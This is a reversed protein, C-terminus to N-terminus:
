RRRRGRTLHIRLMDSNLSVALVLVVGYALQLIFTSVNFYTLVSQLLFIDAGGIVAATFGGIGGGLSVGGLAAAAIAILTYQPGIAPDGSGILSTLSLAALGAFLGGLAYALFRVLPVNVGATYAARDDGGTGMLHDYFPLRKVALWTVAAALLPALAWSGSLARLWPPVNGAPSPLIVLALGAYILYTGLTAVIPQIRIVAALFGNLAGSAVGMCLAFPLIVWASTIGRDLILFQVVAVNILGMLPGVSVDISGRGALFPVMVAVSALILPNALGLTTGLNAPAFRGPSLVLNVGLLVVFLGAALRVDRRGAFFGLLLSLMRGPWASM